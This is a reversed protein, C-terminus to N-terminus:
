KSQSCWLLEDALNEKTNKKLHQEEEFIVMMPHWPSVTLHAMKELSTFCPVLSTFCPMSMASTWYFNPFNTSMAQVYWGFETIDVPFNVTKLIPLDLFQVVHAMLLKVFSWLTSSGFIELHPNEYISFGMWTSFGEPYGWKLVGGFRPM